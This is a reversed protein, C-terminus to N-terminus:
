TTLANTQIATSTENTWHIQSCNLVCQGWWIKVWDKRPTVFYDENSKVIENRMTEIMENEVDKCWKEVPLNKSEVPASFPVEEGEKSCMHTIMGKDNFILKEM